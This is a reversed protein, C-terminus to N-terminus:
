GRCSVLQQLNANRVLNRGLYTYSSLVGAILVTAISMSILLELLTFGAHGPAAKHERTPSM